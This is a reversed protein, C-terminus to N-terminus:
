LKAIQGAIGGVAGAAGSVFVVDDERLGAVDILGAYATLGPMGLVGLYAQVPAIQTDVERVQKAPALAFERWGHGHLVMDGTAF